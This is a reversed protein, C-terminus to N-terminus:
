HFCASVESNDVNVYEAANCSHIVHTQQLDAPSLADLSDIDYQLQEVDQEHTHEASDLEHLEEEYEQPVIEAHMWCHRITEGTVAQWADAVFRACDALSLVPM